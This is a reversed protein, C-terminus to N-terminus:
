VLDIDVKDQLVDGFCQVLEHSIMNPLLHINRFHEYLKKGVLQQPCTRVDVRHVYAVSVDLGLVYQEIHLIVADSESVKPAGLLQDLTFGIHSIYTTPIIPRWLEHKAVSFVGSSNIYPAHSADNGFKHQRKGYKRSITSNFLYNFYYLYKSRWSFIINFSHVWMVFLIPKRLQASKRPLFYEFGPCARFCDLKDAREKDVVWIVAWVSKNSELVVVKVVKAVGSSSKWIAM